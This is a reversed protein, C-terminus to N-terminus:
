RIFFKQREPEVHIGEEPVVGTKEMQEDLVSKSLKEVVAIASPCNLKAWLLVTRENDIVLRPGSQSPTEEIVANM